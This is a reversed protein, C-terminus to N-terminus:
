CRACVCVCVDRVIGGCPWMVTALSVTATLPGARVKKIKGPKRGHFVYSQQRFAEKPTLKRGQPDRYWVRVPPSRGDTGKAVVLMAVLPVDM